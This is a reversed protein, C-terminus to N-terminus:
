RNFDKDSFASAVCWEKIIFPREDPYVTSCNINNLTLASVNRIDMCAARSWDPYYNESSVSTPNLLRDVVEPYEKPIDSLKVGGIFKYTINRLTLNRIPHKKEADVRIGAFPPGGMIDDNFRYHTNKMEESDVATIDSIIIDSVAGIEPIHDLEVSSGLGDPEFRNNLIIFIPRSVDKMTIDQININSISGGESCEIKIGERWVNKMKCHSIYVDSIDGISKLGIRIAACISSFRCNSIHVDRVPLGSSQLCLNDDTGSVRCGSVFVHSCGDFDLGDGNYNKNNQIDVNSVFINCSDLFATTWAASNYLRLGCLRINKCNLFRIMMPRYIDGKNPFAEASGNIIGEGCLEINEADKAFIFCRDLEQENRYRNYHTDKCYRSIDPIATLCASGTVKLSIDSKLYITGSLFNGGDLIVKGGGSNHADDIAAQIADTDDHIGDGAAGYDKPYFNM